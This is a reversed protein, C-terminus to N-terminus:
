APSYIRGGGKHHSQTPWDEVVGKQPRHLWLIVVIKKQAGFKTRTVARIKSVSSACTSLNSVVCTEPQEM